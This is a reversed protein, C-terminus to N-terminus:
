ATGAGDPVEEADIRAEADAIGEDCWEAWAQWEDSSARPSEAPSDCEDCMGIFGHICTM